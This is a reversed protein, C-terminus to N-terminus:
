PESFMKVEALSLYGSGELQIRVFRGQSNQFKITTSPCPVASQFYKKIDTRRKINEIRDDHTFPTDSIFVWFNNLRESSGDTRNWIQITNIPTSQELDVEWWPNAQFATHTTSGSNFHGDTIGDVAAAPQSDALSSSQRAIKGLAINTLNELGDKPLQYKNSVSRRIYKFPALSTSFSGCALKEPSFSDFYLALLPKIEPHETIKPNRIIVMLTHSDKLISELNEIESEFLIQATGTVNLLNSKKLKLQVLHAFPSVVVIKDDSAPQLSKFEKIIDDVFLDIPADNTHNIIYSLKRDPVAATWAWLIFAAFLPAGIFVALMKSLKEGQDKTINPIITDIILGLCCIAPFSVLMLQHPVSRGQYYRLWLLGMFALALLAAAQEAAQANFARFLGRVGLFIAAAYILVHVLWGGFLPMPVAGYGSNFTKIMLLISDISPSSGFRQRYYEHMLFIVLAIAILTIFLQELTSSFYANWKPQAQLAICFVGFIILGIVGSEFNWVLGFALIFYAFMRYYIFNNFPFIMFLLALAPFVLRIPMFQFYTDEPWFKVPILVYIVAFFGFLTAMLKHKSFRYMFLIVTMNAVLLLGSMVLAVNLTGPEGLLRWIPRLFLPYWGYQSKQTIGLAENMWDQVLPYIFPDYHAAIISKDYDTLIVSGSLLLLPLLLIFLSIYKWNQKRELQGVWYLPFTMLLAIALFMGANSTVAVMLSGRHNGFVSNGKFLCLWVILCLTSTILSLKSLFSIETLKLTSCYGAVAFCCIGFFTSFLFTYNEVPEPALAPKVWSTFQYTQYLESLTPIHVTASSVLWTSIAFITTGLLAHSFLCLARINIQM